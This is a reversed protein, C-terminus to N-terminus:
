GRPGTAELTVPQGEVVEVFIGPSRFKPHLRLPKSARSGQAAREEETDTMTVTHPGPMAGREHGRMTFLEFNGSEDTMAQSTMAVITEDTIKPSFQVLIGAAPEGDITLTGTVPVVEAKPTGGCGAILAIALTMAFLNVFLKM